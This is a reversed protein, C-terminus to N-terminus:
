EAISSQIGNSQEQVMGAKWFPIGGSETALKCAKNRALKARSIEPHLM